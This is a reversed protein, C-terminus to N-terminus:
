WYCYIEAHASVFPAYPYNTWVYAYAYQGPALYQSVQSWLYHGSPLWGLVQGICYVTVASPNYFSCSVQQPTYYCETPAVFSGAYASFQVLLSSMLTIIAKSFM